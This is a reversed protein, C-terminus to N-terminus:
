WGMSSAGARESPKERPPGAAPQLHADQTCHCESGLPSRDSERRCGLSRSFESAWSILRLGAIRLGRGEVLDVDRRLRRRRRRSPHPGVGGPDPQSSRGDDRQFTQRGVGMIATTIAHTTSVTMGIEGTVALLHRRHDGSRLRPRAAVEGDQPGHDQHHQWGRRCHGRGHDPRLRGQDVRSTPLSIASRPLRPPSAPRAAKAAKTSPRRPGEALRHDQRRGDARSRSSPCSGPKESAVGASTPRRPRANVSPALNPKASGRAIPSRRRPRPLVERFEGPKIDSGERELIQAAAPTRPHPQGPHGPDAHERGPVQGDEPLRLWGPLSEFSGCDTATVLALTIIGMTKQADALRSRLGHLRRQRDAAQRLCRNM